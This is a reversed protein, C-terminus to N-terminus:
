SKLSPVSIEKSRFLHTIGLVSRIAVGKCLSGFTLSGVGPGPLKLALTAMKHM